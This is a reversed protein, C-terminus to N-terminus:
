KAGGEEVAAKAACYAALPDSFYHCGSIMPVGNEDICKGAKLVAFHFDGFAVDLRCTASHRRICVGFPFEILTASSVMERLEAIERDREALIDRLASRIQSGRIEAEFVLSHLENYDGAHEANGACQLGAGYQAIRGMIGAIEAETAADLPKTDTM